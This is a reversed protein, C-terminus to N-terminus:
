IIKRQRYIYFNNGQMGIGECVLLFNNQGQM